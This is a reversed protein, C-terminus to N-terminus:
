VGCHHQVLITKYKRQYVHVVRSPKFHKNIQWRHMKMYRDMHTDSSDGDM